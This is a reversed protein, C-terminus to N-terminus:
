WDEGGPQVATGARVRIQREAQIRLRLWRGPDDPIAALWQLTAQETEQHAAAERRQRRDAEDAAAADTAGGGKAATGAADTASGTSTGEGAETDSANAAGRRSVNSTGATETTRQGEREGVMGDGLSSVANANPDSTDMSGTEHDIRAGSNALGGPPPPAAASAVAVLREVLARNLRADDDDPDRALALDYAALALAFDGSRALANGLNYAAEPSRTRRLAAAADAPRGAGALAVGQWAPDDFVAAALAPQGAALLLRGIRTPGAAVAAAVALGAILAAAVALRNM